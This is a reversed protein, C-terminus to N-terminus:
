KREKTASTLNKRKDKEKDKGKGKGENIAIPTTASLSVPQESVSISIAKTAKDKLIELQKERKADIERQRAIREALATDAAAKATILSEAVSQAVEISAILETDTQPLDEPRYGDIDDFLSIMRDVANRVILSVGNKFQSKYQLEQLRREQTWGRSSDPKQRRRIIKALQPKLATDDPPPIEGKKGGKGPPVGKALPVTAKVGKADKPPPAGKKMEVAPPTPKRDQIGQ